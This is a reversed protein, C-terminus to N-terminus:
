HKKNAYKEQSPPSMVNNIMVGHKQNIVESKEQKKKDVFIRM